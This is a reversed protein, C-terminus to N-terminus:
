NKQNVRFFKKELSCSICTIKSEANPLELRYFDVENKSRKNGLSFAFISTGPIRQIFFTGITLKGQFVSPNIYIFFTYLYLYIFSVNKKFCYTFDHEKGYSKKSVKSQHHAWHIHFFCPVCCNRLQLWNRNRSPPRFLTTLQEGIRGDLLLALLDPM